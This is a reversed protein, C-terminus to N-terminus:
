RKAAKEIQVIEAGTFGLAMWSQKKAKKFDLLNKLNNATGAKLWIGFFALAQQAVSGAGVQLNKTLVLPEPTPEPEKFNLINQEENYTFKLAEWSKKSARKFQILADMDAKTKATDYLKWAQQAKTLPKAALNEIIQPAMEATAELDEQSVTEVEVSPPVKKAMELPDGYKEIWRGISRTSTEAARAAEAKSVGDLLLQFVRKVEDPITLGVTQTKADKAKQVLNTAVEDPADDKNLELAKGSTVTKGKAQSMTGKVAGAIPNIKTKGNSLVTVIEFPQMVVGKVLDAILSEFSSDTVSMSSNSRVHGQSDMVGVIDYACVRAKTDERHPVAIFDEPNVLVILTNTGSFGSLYGLNCVHLGTSCSNHRSSDVLDVPMVVRSGVQQLVRGTHCDKYIGPAHQNVRKYAIIRGDNTLPMESRKIFKMLDEGSHKRAQIVPALRKLFNAVSPSNEEAARAMHGKLNEVDPIIVKHEGVTVQVSTKAPYFIGQVEKGGIVQTIIIGESEVELAKGIADSVKTYETLDIDVAKTGTLQPTLFEVIKQIDYQGDNVIVIVEGTMTFLTVKDDSTLMSVVQKNVSTM